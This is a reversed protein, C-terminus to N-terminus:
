TRLSQTSFNWFLVKGIGLWRSWVLKVLVPNIVHVHEFSFKHRAPFIYWAITLPCSLIMKNALNLLDSCTSCKNMKVKKEFEKGRKMADKQLSELNRKKNVEKLRSQKRRKNAEEQQLSNVVDCICEPNLIRRILM